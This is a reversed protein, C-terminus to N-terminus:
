LVLHLMLYKGFWSRNLSDLGYYALTPSTPTFCGGKAGCCECPASWLVPSIHKRLRHKQIPSSIKPFFPPDLGFFLYRFLMISLHIQHNIPSPQHIIIYQYINIITPTCSKTFVMLNSKEDPHTFSSVQNLMHEVYVVCSAWPNQDLHFSNQLPVWSSIKM